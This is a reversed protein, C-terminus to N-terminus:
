TRRLRILIDIKAIVAKPPLEPLPYLHCSTPSADVLEATDEWYFHSHDTMNTDFYSKSGRITIERMLGAGCFAHLTNYVTALSVKHNQDNSRKFLSEATVHRNNGDGILQQALIMRQKTPRLAGKALWKAVAQKSESDNIYGTM